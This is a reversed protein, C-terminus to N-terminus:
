TNVHIKKLGLIGRIIDESTILGVVDEKEKVLALPQKAKRLRPLIRDLPTYIDIFVPQKIFESVPKNGDGKMYILIDFVSVIGVYKNSIPDLVPMRTFGHRKIKEICESVTDTIKIDVFKSRPIMVDGARKRRSEMINLIMEKKEKELPTKTVALNYIYDPQEHRLFAGAKFGSGRKIGPLRSNILFVLKVLPVMLKEIIEFLVIFIRTREFALNRFWSKPIFECFLLIFIVLIASSLFEGYGGAVRTFVSASLVSAIVMFLNTGILVTGLFRDPNDLYKVIKRAAEDGERMYYEVKLRSCSLIGTEIGAFFAVMLLSFFIVVLVAIM